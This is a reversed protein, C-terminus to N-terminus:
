YLLATTGKLFYEKPDNFIKYRIFWVYLGNPQLIGKRKGDWGKNINNSTFVKEGWRNYIEMSYSVVNEGYGPKFIDNKGDNNPTFATPIYLKCVGQKVVIGDAATGCTNKVALSYDGPHTVSIATLSDGTSWLFAAGEAHNLFPKLMITMGDCLATDNGLYLRPIYKIGIAISDASVCGDLNVQVSYSGPHHVSFTQNHSNDQWTYAAGPNGADLLYTSRECISTDTGLNIVPVPKYIFQISDRLTCGNDINKIEVWYLGSQTVTYTSGTSNDQWLFSINGQTQPRLVYPTDACSGIDPGLDVSIPDVKVTKRMTDNRCPLYAIVKVQYIGPNSFVHAPSDILSTNNIGTSPDGFDWKISSADTPKTFYFAVENTTCSIKYSFSGKFYSQNFDPLGFFSNTGPALLLGNRVYNCATGPVDPNNIVPLSGSGFVAMYIKGDPGLQLAAYYGPLIIGVISDLDIRSASIKTLPSDLYNYQRVKHRSIGSISSQLSVYLLKSNPSFEVGYPSQNSSITNFIAKRNSIVGTASNFDFLDLGLQIHAAAIKTGDPSVKLYGLGGYPFPRGSHSIVPPNIGVGTVLYAYLEDSNKLHTIVWVDKGNCHNVCTVKEVTPTVLQVNKLEIDGLGGDLDMNVVSYCLGHTGAIYDVTFIYYRKNDDPFPVIMSSQTSSPNGNLGTGNPMVINQANWVKLGDSYFLLHGGTDCISSSGELQSMQSYNTPIPAGSSFDLGAKFGFQWNNGRQPYATLFFPLLVVILFLQKM